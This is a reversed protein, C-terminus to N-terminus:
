LGDALVELLRNIDERTHHATLSLRLRAKGAPVTPPRVARVFFGAEELRAALVLARENAGVIVPIIQSQSPTKIGFFERLRSRCERSLARLRARLEPEEELLRIAALNAGVVPPPLATSFIFSRAKNVLYRAADYSLAAFAGYAGLAKGFTGVIVDVDKAVGSEEALGSGSAGFVGVAHAEDLLLTADYREKLRVLDGLPARDGEMSYISETVILARRYRARHRDLLEELHNMENHRFRFIKARSLVLGDTISAHNLRDSLIVDGHGCLAPLIGCNALYGSGFILASEKGTVRAVSEELRHHIELDGSMLRSANAGTGWEELAERAGKLLAPHDSFGLYDNSSFDLLAKGGVSIRGQGLHRVSALHRLLGEEERQRLFAQVFCALRTDTQTM